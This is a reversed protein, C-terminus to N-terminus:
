CDQVSHHCNRHHSEHHEQCSIRFHHSCKCYRNIEPHNAPYRRQHHQKSRQAHYHIQASSGSVKSQRFYQKSPRVTWSTRKLEARLIISTNQPIRVSESTHGHIISTELRSIDTNRRPGTRIHSVPRRLVHPHFRLQAGPCNLSHM